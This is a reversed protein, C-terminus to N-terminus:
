LTSITTKLLSKDLIFTSGKSGIKVDKIKIKSKSILNYNQLDSFDMSRRQLDKTIKLIEPKIKQSHYYLYSKRLNKLETDIAIMSTEGYVHDDICITSIEIMAKGVNSLSTDFCANYKLFWFINRSSEEINFCPYITM